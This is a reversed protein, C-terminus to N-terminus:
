GKTLRGFYGEGSCAECRRTNTYIFSHQIFMVGQGQCKACPVMLLRLGEDYALRRIPDTLISGAETIRAFEDTDGGADPHKLRAIDRYRRKIDDLSAIPPVGLVAYYNIV